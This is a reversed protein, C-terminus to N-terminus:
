EPELYTYDNLESEYFEEVARGEEESIRGEEIAQRCARSLRPLLREVEYQVYSLVEAATDGEVIEEARWGGEETLRIHVVHPDGFLNHIDGLAEQYAGVLFAALYYDEGPRLEHVALTREIDRLDVFRDIKGDSDCTLDALVAKRGPRETLRHIPLIPFIHGIAWSDPLSQFLSFNCFYIDALITTLEDLEEPVSAMKRALDRIRACTSWFLREALGRWELSLYGLNFLHLAQEYAQIADHFHEVVRRQSLGRSAEILDLIPQSSEVEGELISDLDETVEFHDLASRGLVEFVLVSQYAAIARGSETVITPHDIGKEDCVSAIRYVVESAYERLTYNMSSPFNTQSGDYDVALGGGVDVYRLGAGLRVLEAFVHALEGVADKVRRIDHLQSGPHCHVLELCDKMGKRKLEEFLELVESVFLGFKSRAGVSDRWRGAGQSALKVRVGIRPRVGHKEACGLILRLEEFNEVVPVIHRGLKAALVVAEIYRDDKFGNCIILRRGSDETMAMVALLEPKSGVELGFGYDRGYRYVEEVVPRQQNVKIPYVALYSGRYENEDMAVTFADHMEQLRHTLINSFRLLLPGKLDRERLSQVVEFVDIEEAPSKNPRVVVHGSRDIAFYGKGWAGIQYLDAADEVSWSRELVSRVPRPEAAAM